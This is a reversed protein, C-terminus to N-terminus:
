KKARLIPNISNEENLPFTNELIMISYIQIQEEDTFYGTLYSRFTRSFTIRSFPYSARMKEIARNPNTRKSLPIMLYNEDSRPFM